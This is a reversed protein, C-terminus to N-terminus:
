RPLLSGLTANALKLVLNGVLHDSRTGGFLHPVMGNFELTQDARVSGIFNKGHNLLDRLGNHFPPVASILWIQLNEQYLQNINQLVAFEIAKGSSLIVRPCYRPGAMSTPNASVALIRFCFLCYVQWNVKCCRVGSSVTQATCM